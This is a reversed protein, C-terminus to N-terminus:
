NPTPYNDRICANYAEVSIAIALHHPTNLGEYELTYIMESLLNCDINFFADVASEKDTGDQLAKHSASEKVFPVRSFLM